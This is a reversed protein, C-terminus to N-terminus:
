IYAPQWRHPLPEDIRSAKHTPLRTLVEKLYAHTDHGNMRAAQILRMFAAARQGPRLSGASLWNDCGIAITRIQNEIWNNDAPLQGDGM